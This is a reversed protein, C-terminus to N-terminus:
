FQGLWSIEKKLKIFVPIRYNLALPVLNKDKHLRYFSNGNNNIGHSGHQSHVGSYYYWFIDITQEHLFCKVWWQRM